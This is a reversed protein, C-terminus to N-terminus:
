DLKGRKQIQAPVTVIEAVVGGGRGQKACVVAITLGLFHSFLSHQDRQLGPLAQM